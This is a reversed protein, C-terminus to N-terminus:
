EALGAVLSPLDRSFQGRTLVADISAVNANALLDVEVHQAFAVTKPVHLRELAAGLEEINLGPTQLDVFVGIVPSEEAAREVLRVVSGCARLKFGAGRVAASASSQVM